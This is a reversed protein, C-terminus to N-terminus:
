QAKTAAATAAPTGPATATATPAATTAAATAQATGGTAPPTGPPQTTQAFRALAIDRAAVFGATDTGVLGQKSLVALGDDGLLYWVFAKVEPRTFANVNLVAYLTQSLPYTGNKLNAETPEVCGSGANIPVAKVNSKVDKFETFTMYTIAGEVNQVGAARYLPDNNDTTDQRRVPAVAKVAKSLLFDTEWAGDGPTLILLDTAPFDASVDSWKKVKGESEVSFLKGLQDTTLCQAAKNNPNAVVVVGESGLQLNLMQVNAKQCASAEDNTALRTTGIVDVKNACLDRFGADNGYAATTLKIQTYRPSFADGVAKLPPYAAASGDVTITGATDAPINVSQIRSFTRGTQRTNLYNQARDYTTNSAAIFGVNTVPARGERSLLYTLFDSVPKRDLSAANVYLYLSEAAPYRASELSPVDADVCTDTDTQKMKLARVALQQASTASKFDSLTLLGVGNADSSVQQAVKTPSEVVQIDSRLKDGPVISDTLVYVQSEPATSYIANIPADITPDIDKWSKITSSPSLLKNLQDSSLCTAKSSNNVAVVLADYGILLEIFNVNKEKCAAAETDTVPRVAMNIDLTGGCLKEFGGSTGSVAVDIKTDPHATTYNQSIAKLIPSVINSGDVSVANSTNAGPTQALSLTAANPSLTALLVLAAVVLGIIRRILKM